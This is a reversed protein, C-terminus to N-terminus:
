KNKKLVEFLLKADNVDEIPKPITALGIIDSEHSRLFEVWDDKLSTNETLALFMEPKKFKGGAVGANNRYEYKKVKVGKVTPQYTLKCAELKLEAPQYVNVNDTVTQLVKWRILTSLTVLDILPGAMSSYSFGEIGVVIPLKPDINALIDSVITDSILHYIQLKAIEQDSHVAYKAYNVWRYTIYPECHEFWRKMKGTKESIGYDEKAYIFKKDNIVMATCNLSPDIAIYNKNM